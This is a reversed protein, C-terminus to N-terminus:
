AARGQRRCSGGLGSRLARSPCCSATLGRHHEIGRSRTVGLVRDRECVSDGVRARSECGATTHLERGALATCLREERRDAATTTKTLSRALSSNDGPRLRKHVGQSSLLQLNEKVCLYVAAVM